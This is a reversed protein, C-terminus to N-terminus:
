LITYEYQLHMELFCVNHAGRRRSTIRVFILVHRDEELREEGWSRGLVEGPGTAGAMGATGVAGAARFVMVMHGAKKM